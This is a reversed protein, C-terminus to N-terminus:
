LSIPHLVARGYGLLISVPISSYGLFIALAIVKAIKDLRPGYAKNKWGMSQFM